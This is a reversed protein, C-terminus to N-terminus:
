LVLSRARQVLLEYFILYRLEKIETHVKKSQWKMLKKLNCWHPYFLTCILAGVRSFSKFVYWLDLFFKEEIM